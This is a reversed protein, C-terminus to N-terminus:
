LGFRLPFMGTALGAPSPCVRALGALPRVRGPRALLPVSMGPGPWFPLPCVRGPWALLSPSPCAQALRNGRAGSTIVPIMSGHEEEWVWLGLRIVLVDPLHLDLSM